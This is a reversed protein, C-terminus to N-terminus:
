RKLTLLYAVVDEVEQATLITKGAYEDLVQHLLEPSKYFGPMITDPNLRHEDIIRFRLEGAQLRSGVDELSPGVTGHFPEEPIPLVHCALCNGKDRAIVVRKGRDPDGRLGDIPDPTSFPPQSFAPSSVVSIAMLSLASIIHGGGQPFRRRLWKIVSIMLWAYYYSGRSADFNGM